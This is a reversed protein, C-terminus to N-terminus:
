IGAFGIEAAKKYVEKPFYKKADWEAAHPFLENNAFQYAADQITKQDDTLMESNRFVNLYKKNVKTLNLFKTFNKKLM